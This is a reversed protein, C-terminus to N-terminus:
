FRHPFFPTCALFLGKRAMVGICSPLVLGAGKGEASCTAGFIYASATMQDHPANMIAQRHQKAM